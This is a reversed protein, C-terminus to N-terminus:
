RKRWQAARRAKHLGFKKREVKRPDRKLYGSRKLKKRFDLNFKVLARAIGHRIAEAQGKVGGGNVKASVEFRNLSKMKKLASEATLQLEKTKFFDLYPKGNIIIRGIEEEFPRTTFLRVRAIATKRRGVAEWYKKSKGGKGEEFDKSDELEEDKKKKVVEVEAPKSKATKTKKVKKEEKDAGEKNKTVQTKATMM